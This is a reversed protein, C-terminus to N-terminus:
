IYKIFPFLKRKQFKVACRDYELLRNSTIIATIINYANLTIFRLITIRSNFNQLELNLIKHCTKGFFIYFGDM